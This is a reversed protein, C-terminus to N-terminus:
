SVVCVDFVHNWCVSAGIIGICLGKEDARSSQHCRLRYSLHGDNVGFAFECRSVTELPFEEEEVM